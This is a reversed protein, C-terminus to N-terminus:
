SAARGHLIADLKDTLTELDFPKAIFGALGAGTFHATAEKETYGSMLLVPVKPHSERVQRFVEEGSMVPMTLDLLVARVDKAHEQLMRLGTRGDSATLAAYGARKLMVEATALVTTQDDIVLITGSGSTVPRSKPSAARASRPSETQSFAPLVMACTTGQGPRSRMGVAGRHSRVIGAVVPLGLGRGAFKTSFFPDFARLRTGEDMGRGSDTVEVLVYSGDPLDHTEVVQERFAADLEIRETRLRITGCRDDDIAEAANTVLNLIVQRLQDADAEVLPLAEPLSLQLHARQSVSSHLNRLTEGLVRNVDVRDLVFRGRGSYALMQHTLSSAHEGARKIAALLPRATSDPPLDLLALDANGIIGVLLNNFDHAIGGALMALSELKQARQVRAELERREEEVKTQETIDQLTGVMRVPQRNESVVMHARAMVVRTAGDSREIRHRHVMPLGNQMTQQIKRALMARDDPHVGELIWDASQASEPPKRGMIRCMEDSWTLARTHLDWDWSGLQAIRQSDALVMQNSRLRQETEKRSTIDMIAGIFRGTGQGDCDLARGRAAVWRVLGDRGVVRFEEEYEGGHEIVRQVTAEVQPRDDAHVAALFGKYSPTATASMGLMQRCLPSCELTDTSLDWDWAGLRAAEITLRARDEIAHSAEHQRQRETVDIITSVLRDDGLPSIRLEFTHGAEDAVQHGSSSLTDAAQQLLGLWARGGKPVLQSGRMGTVGTHNLAQAWSPSARELVWDTARQGDRVLLHVAVLDDLGARAVALIATAAEGSEAREWSSSAVQTAM